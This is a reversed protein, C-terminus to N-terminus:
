KLCGIFFDKAYELAEPNTPFSPFDAFDKKVYGNIEGEVSLYYKGCDHKIYVDLFRRRDPTCIHRCDTHPSLSLSGKPEVLLDDKSAVKIVEKRLTAPSPHSARKKTM